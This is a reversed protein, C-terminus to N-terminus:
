SHKRKKKTAIKDNAAKTIREKAVKTMQEKQRAGKDNAGKTM